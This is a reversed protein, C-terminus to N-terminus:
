AQDIGHRELILEIVGPTTDSDREGVRDRNGVEELRDLTL